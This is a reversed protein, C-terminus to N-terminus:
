VLPCSPQESPGNDVVFTWEMKLKGTNKDRFFEDLAPLTMLYLVENLCKFMSEPEYFSLYPLTVGQGTRTLNLTTVDSVQLDVSEITSCPNVNTRTQLFLFTM